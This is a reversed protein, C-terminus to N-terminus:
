TPPKRRAAAASAWRAAHDAAVFIAGGAANAFLDRSNNDYGGVGNGPITLYALYEVMEVVAGAGMMMMVIVVGRPMPGRSPPLLHDILVCGAVANFVHVYKDVGIGLVVADYLRAGHVPVFAAVFHALIGVQTFVLVWPPLRVARFMRWSLTTLSAIILGYGAFEFLASAGHARGALLLAVLLGVCIAANAAAFLDIPKLRRTM